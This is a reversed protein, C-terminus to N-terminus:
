KKPRRQGFYNSAVAAVKGDADAYADVGEAPGFRKTM